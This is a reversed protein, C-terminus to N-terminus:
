LQESPPLSAFNKKDEQLWVQGFDTRNRWQRWGITKGARSFRTSMLLYHLHALHSLHLLFSYLVASSLTPPSPSLVKAGNQPTSPIPPALNKLFDGVLYTIAFRCSWIAPPRRSPYFVVVLVYSASYIAFKPIPINWLTWNELVDKEGNNIDTQQLKCSSIM